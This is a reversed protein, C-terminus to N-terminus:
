NQAAAFTLERRLGQASYSPGPQVKEEEAIREFQKVVDNGTNVNLANV